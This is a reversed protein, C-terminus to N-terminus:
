SNSKIVNIQLMMIFIFRREHLHIEFHWSIDNQEPVVMNICLLSEDFYNGKRCSWLKSNLLRYNLWIKCFIFSSHGTEGARPVNAAKQSGDMFCWTKKNQKTKSMLCEPLADGLNRPSPSYFISSCKLCYPYQTIPHQLDPLKSNM